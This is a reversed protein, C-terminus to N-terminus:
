TVSIEHSSIKRLLPSVKTQSAGANAWYGPEYEALFKDLTKKLPDWDGSGGHRFWILSSYPDTDLSMPRYGLGPNNGIFSSYTQFSAFETEWNRVYKRRVPRKLASSAQLKPTYNDLTQFFAGLCLGWFAVLCAAFIISYLSLKLWSGPSRGLYEGESCLWNNLDSGDDVGKESLALRKRDKEFKGSPSEIEVEPKGRSKPMRM